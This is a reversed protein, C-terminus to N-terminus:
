KRGRRTWSNSILGFMFFLSSVFLSALPSLFVLDPLSLLKGVIASGWGAVFAIPVGFSVWKGLHELRDEDMFLAAFVPPVLSLQAGFVAFVLDAISFGAFTLAEVILIAVVAVVLLIFRSMSLEHRSAALRGKTKGSRLIDTHLTHGAAILQTSATSLSAAYLGIIVLFFLAGAVVSGSSGLVSLFTALPNEGEKVPAVAILLCSLIALAGWSAAASVVSRVLGESVVSEKRSAAIRQWVSMDAAFTPTNILFIGILFSTLGDRWSFDYVALPIHEILFHMGGSETVRWVIAIGLAVIAIWIAVMQIRDTLIVARFGGLSTYVVGIGALVIVGLWMPIEPALSSLFRAGVTLEVAFAGLFGLSTCIAASKMLSPSGFSRGLFEHLTPRHHGFSGMRGWIRPAILRVVFIGIATTLVTWLLWGGLYPALEAFALIVTALSITTAVTAADFERASVVRAQRENSTIPLHDGLQDAKRHLRVALLLYIGGSFFLGGITLATLLM